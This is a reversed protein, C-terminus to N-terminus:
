ATAATRSRSRCGAPAARVDLVAGGAPVALMRALADAERETQEPSVAQLWLDVAVGEFFQEWWNSELTM